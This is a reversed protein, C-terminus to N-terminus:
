SKIVKVGALNEIFRRSSLVLPNSRGFGDIILCAKCRLLLACLGDISIKDGIFVVQRKKLDYSKIIKSLKFPFPKRDFFNDRLSVFDVGLDDALARCRESDKNNTALCVQSKSKLINVIEKEHKAIEYTNKRSLTDDLDILVLEPKEKELVRKAVENSLKKSIYLRM